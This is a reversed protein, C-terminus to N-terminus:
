IIHTLNTFPSHDINVMNSSPFFVSEYLHMRPVIISHPVLSLGLPPSHQLIRSTRHVTYTVFSHQVHSLLTCTIYHWASFVLTKPCMLVPVLSHFLVWFCKYCLHLYQFASPSICITYLTVIHWQSFRVSVLLGNHLFVSICIDM